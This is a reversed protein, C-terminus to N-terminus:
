ISADSSRRGGLRVYAILLKGFELHTGSRQRAVRPASHRSRIRAYSGPHPRTGSSIFAASVETALRAFCFARTIGLRAEVKYYKYYASQEINRNPATKRAPELSRAHRGGYPNHKQVSRGPTNDYFHLPIDAGQNPHPVKNEQLLNRQVIICAPRPPYKQAWQSNRIIKNKGPAPPDRAAHHM